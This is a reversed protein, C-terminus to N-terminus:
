AASPPETDVGFYMALALGADQRVATHPCEEALRELTDRALKLQRHPVESQAIELARRLHEEAQGATMTRWQVRALPFPYVGASVTPWCDSVLRLDTM